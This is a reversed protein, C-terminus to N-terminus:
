LDHCPQRFLLAIDNLILNAFLCVILEYPFTLKYSTRCSFDIGKKLLYITFEPIFRRSNKPALAAPAPAKSIPPRKIM